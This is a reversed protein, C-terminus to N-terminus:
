RTARLWIEVMESFDAFTLDDPQRKLERCIGPLDGVFRAYRAAVEAGGPLGKAKSVSALWNRVEVIARQPDGKHSHIDQGAIDSISARYRYPDSDLVLCAKRRQAKGGFRGCGLFLGLELPMNFRPLSTGSGLGVSSIDHVGYACQEVIRMIKELRVEGADDVELACRAVFGLDDVAFLLAHFIPRYTEDFPCNLFVDRSRLRVPV